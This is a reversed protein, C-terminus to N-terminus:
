KWTTEPVRYSRFKTNANEEAIRSTNLTLFMGNNLKLRKNLSDTTM